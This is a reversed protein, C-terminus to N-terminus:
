ATERKLFGELSPLDNFCESDADGKPHDGLCSVSFARSANAHMTFTFRFLIRPDTPNQVTLRAPM